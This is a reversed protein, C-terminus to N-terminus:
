SHRRGYPPGWVPGGLSDWVENQVDKPANRDEAIMRFIAIERNRYRNAVEMHSPPGFYEHMVEYTAGEDFLLQYHM